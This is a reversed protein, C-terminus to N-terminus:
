FDESELLVDERIPKLNSTWVVQHEIEFDSMRWTPPTAGRLIIKKRKLSQMVQQKGETVGETRDGLM